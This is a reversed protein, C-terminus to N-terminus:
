EAAGDASGEGAGGAAAAAEPAAAPAAGPPADAPAAPPAGAAAAAAAAVTVGLHRAFFAATAEVAAARAAGVIPDTEDGKVAFGHRTGPYHHFESPLAPTGTAKRAMIGRAKAADGPTFVDDSEALVFVTPVTLAEIDAPVATFSPHAAGAVTVLGGGRGGGGALLAYRGGWCFGYVAASTVDGARLGGWFADLLPLTVADGHRRFWPVLMPAAGIFGVTRKLSGWWGQPKAIMFGLAEVSLSDGSHLDPVLV